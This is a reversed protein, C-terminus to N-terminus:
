QGAAGACYSSRSQLASRWAPPFRLKRMCPVYSCYSTTAGSVVAAGRKVLM